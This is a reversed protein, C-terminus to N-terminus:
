QDVDAEEETEYPNDGALPAFNGEQWAEAQGERRAEARVRDLWADFEVYRGAEDPVPLGWFAYGDPNIEASAWCERVEDTYPVYERM